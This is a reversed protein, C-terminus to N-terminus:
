GISWVTREFLHTLYLVLSRDEPSFTHEMSLYNKHIQEMMSGRYATIVALLEREHADGTEAAAIVTLLLTDLSEVISLGLQGAKSQGTRGRPIRFLGFVEEEIVALLKQRNQLNLLQESTELEM